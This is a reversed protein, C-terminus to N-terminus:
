ILRSPEPVPVTPTLGIPVANAAPVAIVNVAVAAVPLVNVPHFSLMPHRVFTQPNIIGALLTWTCATKVAIAGAM